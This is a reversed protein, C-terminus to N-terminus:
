RLSDYFTSGESSASGQPVNEIGNVYRGSEPCRFHGRTFLGTAVLQTIVSSVAQMTDRNNTCNRRLWADLGQKKTLNDYTVAQHGQVIYSRGTSRIHRILDDTYFGAGDGGHPLRIFTNM